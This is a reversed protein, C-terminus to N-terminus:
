ETLFSLKKGTIYDSAYEAIFDAAVIVGLKMILDNQNFDNKLVFRNIAYGGGAGIAIEAARAEVTKSDFYAGSGIDIPMAKSVMGGAYVGVAAAAGFYLSDNMSRTKMVYQDIAVVVAATILPKMLITSDTSM